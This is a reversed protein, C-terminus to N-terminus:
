EFEVEFKGYESFVEEFILKIGRSKEYEEILKKRSLIEGVKKDGKVIVKKVLVHRLIREIQNKLRKYIYEESYVTGTGGCVPCKVKLFSSIEERVKKRTMEVLGLQTFGLVTCKARDQKLKEKFFELLEKKFNENKMDIFDILIIGGIDRLKLQLAIEEAAELNTKFITEELSSKGVYKGTNVDIVTLAETQDIVLFGGSKLWVRKNLLKEVQFDVGYIGSVDGRELVIEIDKGIKKLYQNVKEYEEEDNIVIEDVDYSLFDRLYKVAISEESYILSPSPLLKFNEKIKEYVSLLKEIDEKIEEEKANKSSTRMILGMGEPKLRRAIEALKARDAPNEIRHSVNVYNMFPMLVVYEGPISINTTVRPSKLGIAEKTVQVMVEQGPKLVQTISKDERGVVDELFLFANKNLGIDVFAAQMGKLVNEVKGKYINGLINKGNKREPRYEKLKGDELFAIQCLKEDIDIILRKLIKM